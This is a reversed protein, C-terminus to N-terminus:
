SRETNACEHASGNLDDYIWPTIHNIRRRGRCVAVRRASGAALALLLEATDRVVVFWFLACSCCPFLRRLRTGQELSGNAMSGGGATRSQEHTRAHTKNHSQTRAPTRTAVVWKYYMFRIFVCEIRMSTRGSILDFTLPRHAACDPRNNFWVCLSFFLSWGCNVRETNTFGGM